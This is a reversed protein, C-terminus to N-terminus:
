QSARNEARAAIAGSRSRRIRRRETVAKAAYMAKDAMALLAEVTAGDVPYHAVGFSAQVTIPMGDIIPPQALSRRYVTVIRASETPTVDNLLIVFEDGGFRAVLDSERTRRRLRVGVRELVVDGVRHGHRDNIEKFRNIDLFILAPHWGQRKALLLLHEAELLFYGRGALGTLPDVNARTLLTDERAKQSSIDRLTVMAGRQGDTVLTVSLLFWRIQSDFADRYELEFRALRGHLVGEIGELIRAIANEAIGHAPRFAKHVPLGVFERPGSADRLHADRWATNCAVITGELDLLLVQDTMADLAGQLSVEVQKM